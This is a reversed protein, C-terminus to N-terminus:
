KAQRYEPQSDGQGFFEEQVQLFETEEKSLELKQRKKAFISKVMREIEEPKYDTYKKPEFKLKIQEM